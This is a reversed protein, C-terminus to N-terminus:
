SGDVNHTLALAAREHRHLVQLLARANGARDNLQQPRVTRQLAQAFGTLDTHELSKAAAAAVLPCHFCVFDAIARQFGETGEWTEQNKDSTTITQTSRARWFLFILMVMNYCPLAPSPTLPAVAFGGQRERLLSVGACCALLAQFASNRRLAACQRGLCM